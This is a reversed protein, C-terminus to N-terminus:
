FPVGVVNLPAYKSPFSSIHLWIKSIWIRTEMRDHEYEM